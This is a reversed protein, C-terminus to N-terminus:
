AAQKVTGSGAPAKEAPQRWNRASALGHILAEVELVYVARHDDTTKFVVYNLERDSRFSYTYLINIGAGALKDGLFEPVGPEDPAEVLVIPNSRCDFGATQLAHVTRIANETVLKVVTESGDWYSNAALVEAGCSVTIAILKSLLAPQNVTRVTIEIQRTAGIM